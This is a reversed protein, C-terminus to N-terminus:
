TTEEAAIIANDFAAIVEEHTHTDNFKPINTGMENELAGYAGCEYDVKGIITELAGSACWCVAGESHLSVGRGYSDRAFWGTTWNEPKKILARAARLIEATNM